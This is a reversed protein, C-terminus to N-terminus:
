LGYRYGTRSRVELEENRTKVEVRQYGTEGAPHETQYSLLYYGHQDESTDRLPSLFGVFDEHYVGGTDSALQQLFDSQQPERGAPTLNIPYVAVNHDNLAAELDPYYRRDPRTLRSNGLREGFGVTFLMLNKRGVIYGTAEALLRLADYVNSTQRRLERYPPLRQLISLESRATRRSRSFAARPQRGSVADRIANELAERDQTFDQHVRLAVDYSVVAVWDSPALEEEVWRVSQRGAELLQRLLNTGFYGQRTQDHFFLVFYRSAPVEPAAGAIPGDLDYRTTYYSVSTVPVPEGNEEVIFDEPGLGVIANGERDTVVVDLLVESVEILGSFAGTPDPTQEGRSEEQQALLAHLPHFCLALAIVRFLTRHM